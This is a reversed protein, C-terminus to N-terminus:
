VQLTAALAGPPVLTDRRARVLLRAMAPRDQLTGGGRALTDVGVRLAWGSDSGLRALAVVDGPEVLTLTDIAETLAEVKRLTEANFIGRQRDIFGILILERSQFAQKVEHDQLVAPHGEPLLAEISNNLSVKRMQWAFLLTIALIVGMVSRPYRLILRYYQM